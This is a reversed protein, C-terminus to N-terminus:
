DKGSEACAKPALELLKAVAAEQIGAGPVSAGTFDCTPVREIVDAPNVYIPSSGNRRDFAGPEADWRTIDITGSRILRALGSEALLRERSAKPCVNLVLNMYFPDDPEVVLKERALPRLQEIREFLRQPGEFRASLFLAGCLGCQTALAPQPYKLDTALAQEFARNVKAEREKPSLRELESIARWVRRNSLCLKWCIPPNLEPMHFGPFFLHQYDVLKDILEDLSENRIGAIVERQHMRDGSLAAPASAAEVAGAGSKLVQGTRAPVILLAAYLGLVIPAGIVAVRREVLETM